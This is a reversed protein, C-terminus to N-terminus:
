FPLQTFALETQTFSAEVFPDANAFLADLYVPKDLAAKKIEDSVPKPKSPTVTYKTNKEKGTKNITIDYDFPPGWEESKSLDQIFKQIMSQTIELIQVAKAKDNWVVMAWFHRAPKGQDFTREPKDKFRFRLPKGNEWGVWGLVPKSLIRFKNNGDELKAYNGGVLPAEYSDDLFEM